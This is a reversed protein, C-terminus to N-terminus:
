AAVPEEGFPNRNGPLWHCLGIGLFYLVTLPIALMIM